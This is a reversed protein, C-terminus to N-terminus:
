LLDSNFEDVMDQFYYIAPITKIYKSLQMKYNANINNKERNLPCFKKFYENDHIQANVYDLNLKYIENECFRVRQTFSYRIELLDDYINVISFFPTEM